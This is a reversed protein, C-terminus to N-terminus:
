SRSGRIRRGSWRRWVLRGVGSRSVAAVMLLSSRPLTALALNHLTTVSATNVDGGSLTFHDTALASRLPRVCLEGDELVEAHRATIVTGVPGRARLKLWGVVNQGFDLLLAGSASRWTRQPRLHAIRRVPPALDPSLRANDYDVARVGAWDENQFGPRLWADNERRADISQGDDLVAGEGEAGRDHHLRPELRPGGQTEHEGM